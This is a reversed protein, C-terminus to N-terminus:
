PKSTKSLVERGVKLIEGIAGAAHEAREDFEIRKIDRSVAEKNLILINQMAEGPSIGLEELMKKADSVMIRRTVQGALAETYDKDFEPPGLTNLEVKLGHRQEITSGTEDRDEVLAGNLARQLTDLTSRSLIAEATMGPALLGESLANEVIEGFGERIAKPETRVYLALLPLFGGYQVTWGFNLGVGGEPHDATGGRVVFRSNGTVVFARLNIYDKLTFSEWPFKLHLGTPFVHVAGGFANTALLGAFKPVNVVFLPLSLGTLILYIMGMLIEHYPSTTIRMITGIMEGLLISIGGILILSLAFTFVRDATTGQSGTVKIGYRAGIARIQAPTLREVTM